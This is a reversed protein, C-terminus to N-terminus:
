NIKSQIFSHIEQSQGFINQRDLEVETNDRLDTFRVMSRPMVYNTSGYGSMQALVLNGIKNYPYSMVKGRISYVIEEDTLVIMTTGLNPLIFLYKILSVLAFLAAALLVLGGFRYEMPVNAISGKLYWDSFLAAAFIIFLFVYFLRLLIGIFAKRKTVPFVAWGSKPRQEVVARIVEEANM